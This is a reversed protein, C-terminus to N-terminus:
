LPTRMIRGNKLHVINEMVQIRLRPGPHNIRTHVSLRGLLLARYMCQEANALMMILRAQLLTERAM